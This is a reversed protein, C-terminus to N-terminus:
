GRVWKVAFKMLKNQLLYVEHCSVVCGYVYVYVCRVCMCVWMMLYVYIFKERRNGILLRSFSTPWVLRNTSSVEVCNSLCLNCKKACEEITWHLMYSYFTGLLFADCVLRVTLDRVQFTTPSFSSSTPCLCLSQSL